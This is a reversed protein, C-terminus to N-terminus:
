RTGPRGDNPGSGAQSRNVEAGLGPPWAGPDPAPGATTAPRLRVVRPETLEASTLRRPTAEALPTLTPISANADVVGLSQLQRAKPLVRREMAGVAENYAGVAGGLSKGLKDFHTGLTSLREYLEKGLKHVADANTALAQQRWTYAVTRLLAVLTSPTALVVNKAFARELLSADQALAADLFADAPVFCVVFEPTPSFRAWYAKASLADIHNRLHRAHAKLRLDRTAEDGAQMAELYASFAVKSDVVVNRGGTLRIVLDPRVTGGADAAGDGVPQDGSADAVSVQTEFDVHETMGAAEVVRELQMEGWRGRIQPARLATVLQSTETRLQESTRSMSRVQERLATDSVARGKEVEGLQQQVRALSDRLPVVLAALDGNRMLLEERRAAATRGSDLEARLGAADALAARLLSEAHQRAALWGIVAGAVLTILAILVLALDM